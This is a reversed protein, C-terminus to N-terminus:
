DTHPQPQAPHTHPAPTAPRGPKRRNPWWATITRLYYQRHGLDDHGDPDPAGPDANLARHLADRRVGLRRALSAVSLPIDVTPTDPGPADAHAPPTM